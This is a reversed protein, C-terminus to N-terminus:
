EEYENACRIADALNNHQQFTITEVEHNDWDYYRVSYLKKTRNFNDESTVFTNNGYMGSVVESGWFEMTAPTFFNSGHSLSDEIAETM